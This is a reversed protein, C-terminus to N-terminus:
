YSYDPSGIDNLSKQLEVELLSSMRDEMATRLDKTCAIRQTRSLDQFRLKPIDMFKTMCTNLKTMYESKIQKAEDPCELNAEFLAKVRKDFAAQIDVFGLLAEVKAQEAEAEEPAKFLNKQIIGDVIELYNKTEEYEDWECNLANNVKVIVADSGCREDIMEDLNAIMAEVMEEVMAIDSFITTNVVMWM